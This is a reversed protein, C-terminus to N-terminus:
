LRNTRSKSDITSVKSIIIKEEKGKNGINGEILLLADKVFLSFYKQFTKPFAIAEFLGTEDEFLLFAMIERNKTFQRRVQILLGAIYAHQGPKVQELQNSRIYLYGPLLNGAIKDRYISLPHSSVYIGLIEKEIELIASPSFNYAPITEKLLLNNEVTKTEFKILTSM